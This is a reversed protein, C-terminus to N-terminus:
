RDSPMSMQIWPRLRSKPPCRGISRSSCPFKEVTNFATSRSSVPAMYISRLRAASTAFPRMMSTAPRNARWTLGAAVTRALANALSRVLEPQVAYERRSGGLNALRKRQELTM